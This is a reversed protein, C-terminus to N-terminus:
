LLDKFLDIEEKRKKEILHHLQDFQNDDLKLYHIHSNINSHKEWINCKNKLQEDDSLKMRATNGYGLPFEIYTGDMQVCNELGDIDFITLSEIFPVFSIQFKINVPSEKFLPAIQAVSYKAFGTGIKTMYFILDNNEKAYIKFNDIYKKIDHIGLVKGDSGITPIGYSQGQRGEGQGFIAGFSELATQAYGSRHKGLEHCGFVLIENEKFNLDKIKEYYQYFM